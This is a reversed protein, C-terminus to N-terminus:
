AALILFIILNHLAHPAAAAVYAHAFSVKRWALYACSYVFFIWVTGFFKGFFLPDSLGHLCGWVLASLTAVVSMRSSALSLLRLGAALLLTELLPGVIVMTLLLTVSAVPAAPTLADVDVGILALGSFVVLLAITPLLDLPVVLLCYRWLPVTPASLFLYIRHIYRRLKLADVCPRSSRSKPPAQARAPRAQGIARTPTWTMGIPLILKM